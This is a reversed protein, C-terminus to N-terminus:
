FHKVREAPTKCHMSVEDSYVNGFNPIKMQFLDFTNRLYKHIKLSSNIVTVNFLAIDKLIDELDYMFVLACSNFTVYSIKIDTCMIFNFTFGRACSVTTGGQEFDGTFNLLHVSDIVLQDKMSNIHHNGALLMVMTGNTFPSDGSEIWENFTYCNNESLCNCSTSPETPRM